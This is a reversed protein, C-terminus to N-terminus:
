QTVEEVWDGIVKLAGPNITEEIRSYEVPTGTEAKQFLHNLGPLLKAIANKNRSAKFALELGELNQTAPVQLDKSGDLALIPCNVKELAPIPDYTVFFRFWPSTFQKVAANVAEENIKGVTASDSAMSERIASRIEQQLKMTDSEIRILSYLTRNLRLEKQIEEPPIGMATSVLSDQLYLIQDGPLAPGAMMVIFAVDKSESAVMPAILGGESHGLLGIKKGNVDSRSKLYKIGARVDGAFDRTTAASFVGTSKGTGRDDVRLVAIGRRTLYDAIVLFPKHGFLEEDRNQPGSGTILLLVPFPGGSKPKTFTGALTIGADGNEYSVDEADYPFPPKPEQPRKLETVEEGRHLNLPLSLGGQKWTGTIVSDGPQVSGEYSGNIANITLFLSDLRTAVNDVPIGRAGQDPSDLTARMAGTSDTQFHFVVPLEMTQVKLSGLWSGAISNNSAFSSRTLTLSILITFFYLAHKNKM